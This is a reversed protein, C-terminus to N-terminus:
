CSAVYEEWYGGGDGPPKKVSGAATVPNHGSGSVPCKWLSPKNLSHRTELGNAFWVRCGCAGSPDMEACFTQSTVHAQVIPICWFISTKGPKHSVRKDTLGSVGSMETMHFQCIGTMESLVTLGVNRIQNVVM